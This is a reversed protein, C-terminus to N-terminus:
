APNRAIEILRDIGQDLVADDVAISIRFHSDDRSFVNGPIVLLERAIAAELFEEGSGWPLRPYVYFAGGPTALEYDDALAAVVRDRRARFQDIQPQMDTELAALAAWQAPAPACVFTFQQLQSMAEIVPAPGHAWGVRWGTMGWSKSFGDIVLVQDSFSAPSEHPQDYSFLSYIEDSVLLIAHRQALQALDRLTDPDACVGTPNNPSNVIIMRTRPTIAAEVAALDIQFGPGTAVPVSVGGSMEVLAPYMVFWPDFYIVEDGPNVTAMIALNMAGSTGSTVMVRRGSIKLHRDIRSQLAELLLPVGETPTYGNRDGDIARHMAEKVAPPVPFDPQGISLNVPNRLQGALRFMRRIGSSDFRTARESIWQEPGPSTTRTPPPAPM